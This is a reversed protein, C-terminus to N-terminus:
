MSAGIERRTGHGTPNPEELIEVKHSTSDLTDNGNCCTSPRRETVIKLRSLELALDSSEVRVKCAIPCLHYISAVDSPELNGTLCFLRRSSLNRAM